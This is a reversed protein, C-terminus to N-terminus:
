YRSKSLNQAGKDLYHQVGDTGSVQVNRASREQVTRNKSSHPRQWCAVRLDLPYPM